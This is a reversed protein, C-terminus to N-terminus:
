FCFDILISATFASIDLGKTEPIPSSKPDKLGFHMEIEGEETFALEKWIMGGCWIMGQHGGGSDCLVNYGVAAKM